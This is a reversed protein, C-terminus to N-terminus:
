SIFDSSNNLIHNIVPLFKSGSLLVQMLSFQWSGVAFQWSIFIPKNNPENLGM